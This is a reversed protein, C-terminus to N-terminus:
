NLNKLLKNAIIKNGKENFHMDGYFYYEKIVNESNTDLILKEFDDFYDFFNACKKKCFEKFYLRYNKTREIDFIHGPWPYIALFFNINNEDLLEYIKKLYYINQIFSEYYIQEKSIYHHFNLIWNSKLFKEDYVYSCKTLIFKQCFIKKSYQLATLTFAFNEKLFNKIYFKTDTQFLNKQENKNKKCVSVGCKERFQEDDVDSVDFFLIVNKTKIGKNLYYKLKHYYIIPSYSSVGLNAVRNSSYNDFIGVFTKDYELGVGETFSDGIFWYDYNILDTNNIDCASKFGNKDTCFVGKKNGFFSTGSYNKKFTHSFIKHKIRFKKENVINKKLKGDFTLFINKKEFFKIVTHGLFFDISLFLFIIIFIIKLIDRM